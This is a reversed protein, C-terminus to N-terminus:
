SKPWILSYQPGQSLRDYQCGGTTVGGKVLATIWRSRIRSNSRYKLEGVIICGARFSFTRTLQQGIITSAVRQRKHLSYTMTLDLTIM